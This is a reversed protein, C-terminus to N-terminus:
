RPCWNQFDSFYNEACRNDNISLDVGWSSALSSRLCHALTLSIQQAADACEKSHSKHQAAREENVLSQRFYVMAREVDNDEVMGLVGWYLEDFRQRDKKNMDAADLNALKAVLENTEFYITAQRDLFVKKSERDRTMVEIKWVKLDDSRQTFYTVVGGIITAIFTLLSINAVLKSLM